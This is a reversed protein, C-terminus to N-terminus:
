PVPLAKGPAIDRESRLTRVASIVAMVWQMETAVGADIRAPDASPFPQRMITEGHIGALPAVRQWIEETIFPMIPHALRLVTELVRLLTQRTGRQLLM